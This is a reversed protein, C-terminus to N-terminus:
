ERLTVGEAGGRAAVGEAGARGDIVGGARVAGAGAGPLAGDDGAGAARRPPEAEPRWARSVWVQGLQLALKTTVYSTCGFSPMCSTATAQGCQQFSSRTSTPSLAAM